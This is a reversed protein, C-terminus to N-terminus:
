RVLIFWSCAPRSLARVRGFWSRTCAGSVLSVFGASLEWCQSGSLLIALGVIRSGECCGMPGTIVHCDGLPM